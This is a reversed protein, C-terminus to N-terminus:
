KLPYMSVPKGQHMATMMSEVTIQTVGDWFVILDDSENVINNNRILFAKQPGFDTINPPIVRLDYERSKAWEIVITEVGRSGGTLIRSDQPSDHRLVHQDLIRYIHTSDTYVSGQFDRVGLIGITHRSKAATM